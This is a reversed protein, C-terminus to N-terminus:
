AAGLTTITGSSGRYKLAGAEVYLYGGSTANAAPATSNFIALWADKTVAMATGGANTQWQQLDVSQGSAGRIIAGVGGSAHINVGLTAGLDIAANVQVRSVGFAGTVKLGVTGTSQQLQLLDGTQNTAGRIVAGLTGASRSVITTQAPISVTGAAGAQGTTLATTITFTTTLPVTAVAFTGDYTAGTTSALTVLDGVALGHASAMTVLPNAGTAISQVTGGVASTVPQFNGTFIQGIANRGGVVTGGSNQIQFANATADLFMRTAFGGQTTGYPNSNIMANGTITTGGVVIQGTNNFRGLNTGFSNQWQQLDATGSAIQRIVAGVTSISTPTVSLTGYGLDTAGGATLRTFNGFGSSDVSALATAGSNQWQQLNASQSAAGRIVAGVTGASVSLVSLTAFGLNSASGASVRPFNGFGSADITSIATGTSTEWETFNGTQTASFRRLQLVIDADSVANIAQGTTFTNASGLAAYGTLTTALGSVQAQTVTGSINTVTGSTFDSVQSKTISGSISVATGSTTAYVATGSQQATGASTVTGSTFDSVQSKTISGSISVATGSLTSYVATGSTTSYVATGSQQATSASTVTGSTFDTIQSKTLALLGQNIGIVASSGTGSNTIPSTVAVVANVGSAGQIGVNSLEVLVTTETTTVTTTSM